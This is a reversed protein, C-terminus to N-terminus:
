EEMQHAALATLADELDMAEDHHSNIGHLATTLPGAAEWLPQLLDLITLAENFDDEGLEGELWGHKEAIFKRLQETNM